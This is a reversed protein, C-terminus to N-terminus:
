DPTEPFSTRLAEHRRLIGALAASLHSFDLRGLLRLAVPLNYAASEPELRDLFWLRQQAFSLARVGAGRGAGGVGDGPSPLFASFAGAKTQAAPRGEGPPPAPPA